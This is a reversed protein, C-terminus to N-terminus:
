SKAFWDLGMSEFVVRAQEIMQRDERVIGLARLAFPQLYSRRGLFPRAERELREGDRAAALGDLRASASQLAFWIRGEGLDLPGVLSDVDDVQGRLLALRARPAALMAEYGEPAVEQAREEYRRATESDGCSEAAVALIFLSRANRVCPTALNAEVRAETEAALDLARDWTGQTEFVELQVAAGHLRHHISLPEVVAEHALSLRRAEEFRGTACHTSIAFEYIDAVHDPDSIEGMVAFRKQAWDFAADFDATRFAAMCQGAWAYALLERDGIREAIQMAEEAVEPGPSMLWIARAILAKARTVSDPQSSELAREVWGDVVEPEPLRRWMGGRLSSQFALEGYTDAALAPDSSAGLSREMAELFSEGDFKLANATGALRWLRAQAEKTPELALARHLLSLADELEFRGTALEAARELWFLAKERLREREHEEGGWALDADEPRVAEAYHHALFSAVEDREGLRELWDAFAAHLRARKAKPL